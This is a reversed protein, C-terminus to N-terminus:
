LNKLDTFIKLIKQSANGKGYHFIVRAMRKYEERDELLKLTSKVIQNQNTGVLKVNGSILGEPRETIERMVLVPKGLSPAEEQIGGSDTLIIYSKNLLWILHPYSLPEILHINKIEQLIRAAPERVNPNLHVPFIIEIDNRNSTIEKLALCINEFPKGFNERRHATVLILRKSFDIYDFFELFAENKLKTRELCYLMADIVTNGVVFVNNFIGEKKLNDRARNTPAFHYDTIHSILIRNIEEPFPSFKKGTRLGAEIHAIKLKKYFGSLAGIFASTADGQIIIIDANFENLVSELRRLGEITIDFLSQNTIMLNLDFDTKIEFFTLVQDLMEKHQSTICVRVNFANTQERFEKILPALKIAEPRTGFIFLINKISIM